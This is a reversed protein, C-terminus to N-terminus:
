LIEGVLDYDHSETVRVKVIEGVRATGANIIVHGDVEPAQTAM